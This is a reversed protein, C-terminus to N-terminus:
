RPTAAGARRTTSRNASRRDVAIAPLAGQARRLVGLQDRLVLPDCGDDLYRQCDVLVDDALTPGGHTRGARAKRLAEVQAAKAEAYECLARACGTMRKLKGTKARSVLSQNVGVDRAIAQQSPMERMKLASSLKKLRTSDQMVRKCIRMVLM